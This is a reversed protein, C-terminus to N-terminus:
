LEDNIFKKSSRWQSNASQGDSIHGAGHCSRQFDPPELHVAGALQGQPTSSSDRPDSIDGHRPRHERPIPALQM